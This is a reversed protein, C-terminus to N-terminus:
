AFGPRAYDAIMDAVDPDMRGVRIPGFDGAGAIGDVSDRRRFLRATWLLQAEIIPAPVAPWGYVATVQVRVSPWTPWFQWHHRLTDVARLLTAANAPLAEYDAANIANTFAGAQGTAVSITTADAIDDVALFEPHSATFVRSTAATDRNFGLPGPRGTRENIKWTTADLARQILADDNTDTSPIGLVSKVDLLTAYSVLAPM